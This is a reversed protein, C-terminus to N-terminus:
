ERGGLMREAKKRRGVKTDTVRPHFAGWERMRCIDSCFKAWPRLRVFPTQDWSCLAVGYKSKVKLLERYKARAWAPVELDDLERMRAPM